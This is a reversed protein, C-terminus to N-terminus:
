IVLENIIEVSNDTSDDDVIIVEYPQISQKCIAKLALGVFAADNYNPMAVSLKTDISKLSPKLM